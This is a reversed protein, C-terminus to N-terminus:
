LVLLIYTILPSWKTTASYACSLTQIRGMSFLRDQTSLRGHPMLWAIFSHRPVAQKSWILSSWDVKSGKIGIHEWLSSVSFQGNSSLKWICKDQDDHLFPLNQYLFNQIAAPIFWSGEHLIAELKANRGICSDYIVPPARLFLPSRGDWSDYWLSISKADGIQWAIHPM